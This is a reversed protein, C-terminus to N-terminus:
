LKADKAAKIMWAAFDRAAANSRPAPSEVLYYGRPSASSGKFPAVLRKEKLLHKILPFGGPAVGQGAVAAAIVEDYRSFRLMGAPKIEAIGMARFWTTWDVWPAGGTANELHLMVHHRLDAPVRLPRAPDELLAPSCVPMVREGFLWTGEGPKAAGYRIAVDVRELSLMEYTASIRVDIDRHSQAFAALRPILWLSAFGPTTTVNLMRPEGRAEQTATRLLKLAQAVADHYLRGADTLELGRHRRRFLPVGLDEELSKIQRSVASQTLFLEGAAATINLHRAAADFGKILDLPPLRHESM